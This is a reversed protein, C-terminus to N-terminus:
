ETVGTVVQFLEERDIASGNFEHTLDGFEDFIFTKNDHSVVAGSKEFHEGFPTTLKEIESRNGTLMKIYSLDFNMKKAHEKLRKPTDNEPDVSVSVLLINKTNIGSANIDAQLKSFNSLLVPCATPDVCNVYIFTLAVRKGLLDQRTVRKGNEDILQFDPLSIKKDVKHANELTKTEISFEKENKSKEGHNNVAIDAVWDGDMPLTVSGAYYGNGIDDMSVQYTGHDMDKMTLRASVKAGLIVKDNNDQIKVQIYFPEGPTFTKPTLFKVRLNNASCGSILVLILCVMSIGIKKM